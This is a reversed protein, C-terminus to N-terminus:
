EREDIEIKNFEILVSEAGLPTNRWIRHLKKNMIGLLKRFFTIIANIQTKPINLKDCFYSNNISTKNIGINKLFCNFLLNDIVNLPKRKDIFIDAIRINEKIIMLHIEVAADGVINFQYQKNDQLKM